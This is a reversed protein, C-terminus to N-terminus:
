KGSAVGAAKGSHRLERSASIDGQRVDDAAPRSFFRWQATSTLRKLLSRRKVMGLFHHGHREFLYVTEKYTMRGSNLLKFRHSYRYEIEDGESAYEIAAETPGIMRARPKNVIHQGAPSYLESAFFVKDDQRGFAVAVHDRNHRRLLASNRIFGGWYGVFDLSARPLELVNSSSYLHSHAGVQQSGPLTISSLHVTEHSRPIAPRSFTSPRALLNLGVLVVFGLLGAALALAYGHKRENM